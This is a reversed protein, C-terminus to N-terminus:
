LGAEFARVKEIFAAILEPDKIGPAIELGSNADVGYPNVAELAETVNDVSLGGALLFPKHLSLQEIISWDFVEGTGGVVNKKYTDLLFGKVNAIYPQVMEATLEPGVRLAKLVQCPAAERSLKECYQPSENGHLQVYDLRCYEVIEEVEKRKKDVFVGVVDVLPPLQEIITKAKEPDINRSSEKYFIFGLADVGANVAAMADGLRTMGCIKIRVRKQTSM